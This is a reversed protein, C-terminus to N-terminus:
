PAQILPLRVHVTFGAPTAVAEMTGGYLSARERMGVLGRGFVPIQPEASAGEDTIDAEVADGTFRLMVRTPAGNAHRMSNTLAEQVIRYVALDIGPSVTRQEGETKLAVDFGTAALRRILPRLDAISPQPALPADEDATLLGLLDRLENLAERGEGEVAGLIETARTLDRSALRRAAGTQLTMVSVAHTVIDHLERAIRRREERLTLERELEHLRQLEQARSRWQNARDDRQRILTAAAWIFGLIGFPALRAGAAPWGGGQAAAAGAVATVAILSVLPHRVYAATSYCALLLCILALANIWYDSSDSTAWSAGAAVVTLVLVPLHRRWTLPVTLLLLPVAQARGASAAAGAALVALALALV